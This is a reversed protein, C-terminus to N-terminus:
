SPLMGVKNEKIKKDEVISSTNEEREDKKLLRKYRIQGQDKRQLIM